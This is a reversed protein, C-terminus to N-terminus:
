DFIGQWWYAGEPTAYVWLGEGEDTTVKYYDRDFGKDWWEGNLREPGQWQAVKWRRRSATHLLLDGERLLPVAAELLRTPRPVAPPPAGNGSGAGTPAERLVRTWAKEPLYRAALEALFVQDEGLRQRLRNVLAAWAEAEDEKKEWLHRQASLGPATDTLKLKLTTVPAALPRRQWEAQLRERLVRLLGLAGGQPLPLRLDFERWQVPRGYPKLALSLTLGSARKGRGALRAALRDCCQKLHFLVTEGESVGELTALDRTDAWEEVQAPPQFAPWAMDWAGLFRARLIAAQPGFRTELTRQPLRDLDGLRLLGLAKFGGALATVAEASQPDEQFPSAYAQLADMPLAALEAGETGGGWRARAWAEAANNGWGLRHPEPGLRRALSLVRAKAADGGGLVWRSHAVEVFVAEQGRLAVQSSLRLCAEALAQAQTGQAAPLYLCLVRPHPTM